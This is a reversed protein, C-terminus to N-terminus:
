KTNELSNQLLLFDVTTLAAMSEVIPVARPLVCPDHRGKGIFETDEGTITITKQIRQITAVPKFFVRFYIEAGNTIGGQVGGSFNTQTKVEKEETIYFLDNCESGNLLAGNFGMGYDFGKAANIGLMAYGLRAHFKDFVPEGLGSPVNRIVCQIIGGVTDGSKRIELIKQLMKESTEKHPCRVENREIENHTYGMFKCPYKSETSKKKIAPISIEGITDVWALIEVSTLQNLVMKAISGAAVRAATERASSRGGGLHDRRGYKKYYTYDAHSPRFINKLHEYDEPKANSNRILLMIPTGTTYDEFIGSFIEVQDAEKRQTVIKSQGPKRREMESFLFDYDIKIGAPCGDIIVGIAKGHSEGFTTIRFKKGYSNSM